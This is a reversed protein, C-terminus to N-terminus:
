AIAQPSTGVGVTKRTDNAGDIVMVNNSGFNTVYIENTVPNVAISQPGSYGTFLDTTDNAGDIVTM